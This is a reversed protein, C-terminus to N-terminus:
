DRNGLIRLVKNDNSTAIISYHYSIYKLTTNITSFLDGKSLTIM